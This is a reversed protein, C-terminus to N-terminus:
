DRDRKKKEKKGRLHPNISPGLDKEGIGYSQPCESGQAAIVSEVVITILSVGNGVDGYPPMALLCLM